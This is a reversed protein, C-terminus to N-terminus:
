RHVRRRGARGPLASAPASRSSRATPRCWTGASHEAWCPVCISARNMTRISSFFGLGTGAIASFVDSSAMFVQAASQHDRQREPDDVLQTRSDYGTGSGSALMSTTNRSTTAKSKSYGIDVYGNVRKRLAGSEEIASMTRHRFRRAHATNQRGCDVPIRRCRHRACPASRANGPVRARVEVVQDSKLRAVHTM